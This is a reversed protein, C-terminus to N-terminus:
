PRLQKTCCLFLGAPPAAPLDQEHREAKLSWCEIGFASKLNDRHHVVVRVTVLIHEQTLAKAAHVLRPAGVTTRASPTSITHKARILFVSPKNLSVSWATAAKALRKLLKYRGLAQGAGEDRTKDNFEIKMTGRAAPATEELVGEYQEQAALLADLRARLAADRRCERDLFAAREASSKELPLAFLAEERASNM